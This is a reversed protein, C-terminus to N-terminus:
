ACRRAEDGKLRSTFRLIRCYPIGGVRLINMDISVVVYGSGTVWVYSGGDM